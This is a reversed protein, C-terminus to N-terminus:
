AAEPTWLEALVGYHDSVTLEHGDSATFTSMAFRRCAHPEGAQGYAWEYVFLYDIRRRPARGPRYSGGPMHAATLAALATECGTTHGQDGAWDAADVWMTSHGQVHELGTLYRVPQSDPTANLDGGLIVVPRTRHDLHEGQHTFAALAIDDLAKLQELRQTTAGAGWAGHHSMVIVRRGGIAAEGIAPPVGNWFAPHPHGQIHHRSLIANGSRHGAGLSVVVHRMGLAASLTAVIDYGDAQDPTLVEQLLLFDLEETILETILHQVREGIAYPSHLLNLTAVRLM